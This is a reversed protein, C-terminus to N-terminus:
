FCLLRVNGTAKGETGKSEERDGWGALARDCFCFLRDVLFFGGTNNMRAVLM